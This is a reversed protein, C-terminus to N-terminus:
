LFQIDPKGLNNIKLVSLIVEKTLKSTESTKGSFLINENIHYKKM